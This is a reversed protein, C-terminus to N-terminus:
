SSPPNLKKVPNLFTTLESWREAYLKRRARRAVVELKLGDPDTLFTAYYDDSYQPYIAPSTAEIGKATVLAHFCDVAKNDAVQLCLHHLGPAYPDHKAASKAERISVQMVRNFYHRHLDGAIATDTKRFDLLGFVADYFPESRTVDSVTLYLHDLGLVEVREPLLDSM